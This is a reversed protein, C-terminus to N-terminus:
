AGEGSERGGGSSAEADEPAQESLEAKDDSDEPVFLKAATNGQEAMRAGDPAEEEREPM